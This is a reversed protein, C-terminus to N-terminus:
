FVAVIIATLIFRLSKETGTRKGNIKQKFSYSHEKINKISTLYPHEWQEKMHHHNYQAVTQMSEM